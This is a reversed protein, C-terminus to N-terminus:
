SEPSEDYLVRPARFNEFIIIDVDKKCLAEFDESSRVTWIASLGRLLGTSLRFNINRMEEFRYAIFHPKSVLNLFLNSFVFSELASRDKRNACALQGRMWKPRKKRIYRMIRPDFSEVCFLGSYSDLIEIARYCLAEYDKQTKFEIILPVRGSVASLAQELLPIRQETGSLHLSSIQLYGTQEPTRGDSCMRSFDDDHFVIVKGDKSMRIDLEIGYGAAAAAEFAALSNEPIDGGHLGRHAYSRNAFGDYQKEDADSPCILLMWLLFVLVLILFVTLFVTLM